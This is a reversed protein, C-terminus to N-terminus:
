TTSPRPTPRRCCRRASTRCTSCRPPRRRTPSSRRGQAAPRAGTTAPSSACTSAAWSRRSSSRRGPHRASLEIGNDIKLTVEVKSGEQASRGSRARRCAPWGCRTAARAARRHRRLAGERHVPGQGRGRDLFCPRRHHGGPHRRHRDGRHHAPQARHLGERGRGRRSSSSTAWTPSRRGARPGGIGPPDRRHRPDRQQLSTQNALCAVVVRIQFWQGYSSILHYPALGSSLTALSKELDARHQGLVGAITQLNNSRPTSTAGTSPSSSACSRRCPRSTASWGRCPTTTTPWRRRLRDVPEDGDPRAGHRARGARGGGPRPQRHHQRDQHRALGTHEAVAATNGLLRGCRTRTARCPRSSRRARVRQGPGPRHGPPDARGLQPVGGRRGLPVARASPSSTRRASCAAARARTSTSTSRASCTAGGCASRRARRADARRGQRHVLGAARGRHVKISPSRARRRRRGDERQRQGAPRHRRGARGQVGHEHAFLHSTASSRRRPVRAREPVRRHLRRAQHDHPRRGRLVRRLHEIM